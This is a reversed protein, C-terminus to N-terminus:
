LGRYKEILHRLLFIVKM